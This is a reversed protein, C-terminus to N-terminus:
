LKYLVSNSPAEIYNRMYTGYSKKGGGVSSPTEFKARLTILPYNSGNWEANIIIHKGSEDLEVNVPV